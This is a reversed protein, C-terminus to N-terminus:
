ENGVWEIKIFTYLKVDDPLMKWKLMMGTILHYRGFSVFLKRNFFPKTFILWRSYRKVLIFNNVIQKTKESHSISIEEKLKQENIKTYM